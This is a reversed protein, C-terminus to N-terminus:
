YSFYTEFNAHMGPGYRATNSASFLAVFLVWCCLNRVHPTKSNKKGWGHLVGCLHYGTSLVSVGCLLFLFLIFYM